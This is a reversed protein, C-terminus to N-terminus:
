APNRERQTSAAGRSETVVVADEGDVETLRVAV